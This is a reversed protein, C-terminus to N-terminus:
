STRPGSGSTVPRPSRARRATCSTTGTAIGSPGAPPGAPGKEREHGGQDGALARGDALGAGNRRYRRRDAHARARCEDDRRGRPREAEALLTTRQPPEDRQGAAGRWGRRRLVGVALPDEERERM